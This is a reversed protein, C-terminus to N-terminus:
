SKSLHGIGKWIGSEAPRVNGSKPLGSEIAKGDRKEWGYRQLGNNFKEVMPQSLYRYDRQNSINYAVALAADVQQNQRSQAAHKEQEAINKKEAERGEEWTKYLHIQKEPSLDLVYNPILFQSPSAKPWVKTLYKYINDWNLDGMDLMVMHLDNPGHIRNPFQHVEKLGMFFLTSLVNHCSGLRVNEMQMSSAIGLYVVDSAFSQLVAVMFDAVQDQTQFYGGGLHNIEAAGCCDMMFNASFNLGVGRDYNSLKSGERQYGSRGSVAKLNSLTYGLSPLHPKVPAPKAIAIKEAKMTDM